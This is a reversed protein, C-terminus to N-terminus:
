STNTMEAAKSTRLQVAILACTSKRPSTCPSSPPPSVVTANLGLCFLWLFSRYARVCVCVRKHPGEVSMILYIDIGADLSQECVKM